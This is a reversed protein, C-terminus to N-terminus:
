HHYHPGWDDKDGGSGLTDATFRGVEALAPRTYTEGLGTMAGDKASGTKDSENREQPM